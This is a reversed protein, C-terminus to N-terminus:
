MHSDNTSLVRTVSRRHHEGAPLNKRDATYKAYAPSSPDATSALQGEEKYPVLPDSATSYPVAPVFHYFIKDRLSNWFPGVPAVFLGWGASLAVATLHALFYIWVTQWGCGNVVAPGLVRAFNLAAGTFPGGVLAAVLLSLGIVLPGFNGAGKQAVALEIVTVILLVTMITEWGWLQAHSVGVSPLFCGPDPTTAFGKSIAAGVIAGALQCVIYGLGQVVSLHGTLILTSSVNPNLNGGSQAVTCYVLVALALGNTVAAYEPPALGGFFAFLLTGLFESSFASAILYFGMAKQYNQKRYPRTRCVSCGGKPGNTLSFYQPINDSALCIIADLVETVEFM